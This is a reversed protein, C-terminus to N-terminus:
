IIRGSESDAARRVSLSRGIVTTEWSPNMKLESGSSGIEFPRLLTFCFGIVPDQEAGLHEARDIRRRDDENGFVADELLLRERKSDRAFVVFAVLDILTRRDLAQSGDDDWSMVQLAERAGTPELDSDIARAIKRDVLIDEELRRIEAFHGRAVCTVAAEGSELTRLRYSNLFPCRDSRQISTLSTQDVGQHSRRNQQDGTETLGAGALRQDCDGAGHVQCESPFVRAERCTPIMM